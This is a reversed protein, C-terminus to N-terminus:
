ESCQKKSSRMAPLKNDQEEDLEEELEEDLEASCSPLSSSSSMIVSFFQEVPFLRVAEGWVPHIGSCRSNGLFFGHECVFKWGKACAIAGFLLLPVADILLDVSISSGFPVILDLL